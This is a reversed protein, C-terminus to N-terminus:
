HHYSFSVLYHSLKPDPKVTHTTVRVTVTGEVVPRTITVLQGNLKGDEQERVVTAKIHLDPLEDYEVMLDIATQRAESQSDYAANLAKHVEANRTNVQADAKILYVTRAKGATASAVPKRPVPLSVVEIDGLETVPFDSHLLTRLKEIGLYGGVRLLAITPGDVKVKVTRTKTVVSGTAAIPRILSHDWGETDGVHAYYLGSVQEALVPALKPAGARQDEHRSAETDRWQQVAESVMLDEWMQSRGLYFYGRDRPAQVADKRLQEAREVSIVQTADFYGM